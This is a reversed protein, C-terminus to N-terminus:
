TWPGPLSPSPPLRSSSTSGARLSTGAASSSARRPGPLASSSCPPASSSSTTTSPWGSIRPRTSVPPSSARATRGCPWPSPGRIPCRSGAPSASGTRPPTTRAGSCRCRSGPAASPPSTGPGSHHSSRSRSGAPRPGPGPRPPRTTRSRLPRPCLNQRGALFSLRNTAQALSLSPREPMPNNIVFDGAIVPATARGADSLRRSTGGLGPVQQMQRLLASPLFPVMSRPMAFGFMSSLDGLGPVMGGGAMYGLSSAFGGPSVTGGGAFGYAPTRGPLSIVPVSPGGMILPQLNFRIGAPLPLNPPGPMGLPGQIGSTFAGGAAFIDKSLQTFTLGGPYNGGTVGALNYFSNLSAQSPFSATMWGGAGDPVQVTVEGAISGGEKQVAMNLQGFDLGGPYAGGTAGLDAYFANLADVSPFTVTMWGGSGDPVQVTVPVPATSASSSTDAPSSSTSQSAAAPTSSSPPPPGAAQFSGPGTATHQLLTVIMQAHPPAVPGGNAWVWTRYQWGPHLGTGGRGYEATDRSGPSTTFQDVVVGNLQLTEVTYTSPHVGGQGTVSDWALRYGQDTVDYAHLGGPAPYSWGTTGGGAFGPVMGGMAYDAMGGWAKNVIRVGGTGKAAQKAAPKTAAAKDHGGIWWLIDNVLVRPLGTIARGWLTSGGPIRDLLALIGELVPRAAAEVGGKVLKKAWGVLDSLAHLADEGLNGLASGAATIWNLPDWWGGGQFHPIGGGQGAQQGAGRYGGFKRNLWHIAQPGGIGMVAEPVLIGEGPSLRALKSDHGPAYGPIVGGEALGELGGLPRGLGLFSTVADFVRAIPAIVNHEVWKVPVNVINEIGGWIRSIDNVLTQFGSKIDAWVGKFFGEINGWVSKATSEIAKWAGSFASGMNNLFQKFFNGFAGFATHFFGDIAHWIQEGVNKIDDWATKWHGTILDLFVNFIGVIVDWAIKVVAEMAGVTTKVVAVLLDWATKVIGVILSWAVKTIGAVLDWATKVVAEIATLALKIVTLVLDWATKVVAAILGAGAKTLGWILDWGAKVVGEVASFVGSVIPELKFWVAQWAESLFHGGGTFAGVFKQWFGALGQTLHDWFTKATDSIITWLSTWVQEIADGHTKWWSDFGTTIAKKVNEFARIVPSALESWVKDWIQPVTQTFFNPFDTTFWKAIPSGVNRIFSTYVTSWAGAISDGVRVAAHPLSDTFWRTVPGGVNRQFATYADSWGKPLFTGFFTTIAHPLTTSFFTGLERINTRYRDGIDAWFGNKSLSGAAAAGGALQQRLQSSTTGAGKLQDNLKSASKWLDDAASRSLGMSLAWAVFQDHASGSSKDIALLITAVQAAAAITQQSNPGFKGLTTVFNNLAKQAGLGNFEASALAQNLDTQLTTTLKAADASLNSVPVELQTLIKDLDAAAGAVGQKGVWHTLKQWTNISPDAEQVLALLSAQAAQNGQALPIMEAALDRTARTLLASGAAGNQLVASQNRIEDLVNGAQPILQLYAARLTLSANSLGGMSAGAARADTNTTALNQQFAVFASEGGTVTKLWTDWATNLAQMQKVQDSGVVLQASVDGQLQTLGQGMAKYGAVLGDVQVMAGAWVKNQNTFLQSTTVGAANLLALAQPMDVGYAKSISGVHVLEEQLKGSLDTQAGALEHVSQANLGQSNTLQQTVAALSSITRGIVTLVSGQGLGKGLTDIWKQAADKATLAKYTFFAVAAVLLLLGGTALTGALGLGAIGAAAGGAAVGAGSMAAAEEGIAAAAPGAADAVGSSAAKFLGLRGPIAGFGALIDTIAAKLKTLGSASAPLVALTSTAVEVGGLALALARLPDLLSVVVSAALGGWLYIAHLGFALALLWPPIASTIIAALKTLAIVFVGLDEAVHTLQAAKFFNFVVQGLNLFIQGFQKAFAIGSNILHQFGAQVSPQNFWAIFRGALRDISAGVREAISGILGMKGQILTLADGYLQWVEPRIVHALRDFSNTMPYIAQSTATSATYVAKLRDSIRGLTDQAQSAVGLFIGVGAALAAVGIIAGGLAIAFEIIADALIHWLGVTFIGGFLAIKTGLGAIGATAGIFGRALQGLATVAAASSDKLDKTRGGLTQYAYSLKAAGDADGALASKLIAAKLAALDANQAVNKEAAALANDAAASQAAQAPTEEPGGPAAPAAPPPGGGGGGAGGMGALHETVLETVDVQGLRVKLAAVETPDIKFDVPIEAKLRSLTAVEALIQNFQTAYPGTYNVAIQEPPLAAPIPVGGMGYAARIVEDAGITASQSTPLGRLLARWAALKAIGASDDVNLVTTVQSPLGVLAAEYGSLGAAAGPAAEGIAGLTEHTGRLANAYALYANALNTYIGAREKMVVNLLTDTTYERQLYSLYQDPTTYGTGASTAGFKARNMLWHQALELQRWSYAAQPSTFGLWKERNILTLWNSEQALDSLHQAMSTRGGFDTWIAAKQASEALTDYAVKEDRLVLLEKQRAERAANAADKEAQGETAVQDQLGKLAAKAAAADRILDGFDGIAKYIVEWYEAM